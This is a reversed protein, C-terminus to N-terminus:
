QLVCERACLCCRFMETMDIVAFTGYNSNHQEEPICTM